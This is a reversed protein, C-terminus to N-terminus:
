KERFSRRLSRIFPEIMYTFLTHEGTRIFIEAPMGPSLQINEGLDKVAEHDVVINARYYRMGTKEDTLTNASIDRM